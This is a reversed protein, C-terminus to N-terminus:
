LRPPVERSAGWAVRHTHPQVGAAQLAQTVNKRMEACLYWADDPSAAWAALWCEISEPDLSRVWFHPAEEGVHYKSRRAAAIALEEVADLDADYSVRFSVNAWLHQDKHSYNLFEKQLMRGNPVIYRKWDWLKIVTHTLNIDEVTGYQDNDLKVTDGIRLQNSFSIVIGSITNEVLPRSAIGVIAMALGAFFSALAKPVADLFPFSGIFLAVLILTVTLLRRIISYRNRVSLRAQNRATNLSNDLPPETSVADFADLEDVHQLRGQLRRRVVVSGAVWLTLALGGGIAGWILKDLLAEHMIM